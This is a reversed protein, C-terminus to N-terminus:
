AEHQEHHTSAMKQEHQEHYISYGILFPYDRTKKTKKSCVCM